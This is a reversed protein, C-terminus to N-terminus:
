IVSGLQFIPLYMAVVLGGVVVGLFAMILPEILSSLGDVAADVEEEYFDAVKTLMSDLAGSEEGIAVMQVVMNPFLGAQKMSQQLQQGTAVDERINIIANSYVINGAAGAVSTLADVLPVGAAFMTALTRSFRAVAAKNMIMGLVPVKLILRDLFHNFKHSRRKAEFFAVVAVVLLFLVFYWYTSLLNSLEIVFKTFAPLQAGFNAFIEEFQPVVFLLLISTVIIAVVVVAAPYFLAKKIKKKLSETKEKYTAIKDLLTELAGSQEGANILNIFLEDFHRPHKALGEALTSGQEIDAKISMLMEQMSPNEHGKGVIDFAQVLPVGAGMMTALQRSFVAIDAAKISKKKSASFLESKKKIAGPRVIVGQKRVEAKAITMNAAKTEGKIKNGRQDKGEWTFTYLKTGKTKKKNKQQVQAM